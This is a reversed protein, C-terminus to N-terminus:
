PIKSWMYSCNERETCYTEWIPIIKGMLFQYPPFNQGLVMSITLVISLHTVQLMLLMHQRASDPSRLCLCCLAVIAERRVGAVESQVSGTVFTEMLTHLTANLSTIKPDQMTATLLKLCKLLVAPSTDEGAGVEEEDDSEPISTPDVEAAVSTGKLLRVEEERRAVEEEVGDLRRKVEQALIFDQGAVASGLEEKLENM